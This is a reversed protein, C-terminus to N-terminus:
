GFQGMEVMKSGQLEFGPELLELEERVGKYHEYSGGFAVYGGNLEEFNSLYSMNRIMHRSCRSDIVGKDQLAHQPNCQAANVMPVKIVTVRPPSNSVKLSPNRNIHRRFPSKSKTVVPKAQRPRTVHIKPVVTVLQNKCVFCAKRNGCEGNSTPKPIATKTPISTDVHKVSHMPSKVQETPQVFSPVNQPPKTEFEDDFDSVWDDIIPASPRYTHSLDNDPKTPSLQVNFAPHDTEVDNPITNFVLDHKTPMFTGTYPPPVDHYGNGSHYRDYIPSPPFSDDNLKLDDREQEAKELNQRLTVLANDRLQVEVKVLKNEEKFVSENQQYVLLRAEVSELGIQYSNVDFLLKRFNTTLKDYHSQLQAYAKTCVKSYSVVENDSSSSSSLFAMLAYNTPEEETQFGRDYSGVGDCQSVLANSTSTKIPVNRRQPEAVGNSRADKPSSCERAFHGGINRGTRQLLRRARMTLMAMQWKLDMEEHDDFNIASVSATASVPETTIDTNSSSVFAINQTSTSASSPSKVKAKYIKHSNFLDDLSQEELDIKNRWILTHTKKTKTNGGFRKEIAKMLTKADKHSNFKLQHKDPLSM